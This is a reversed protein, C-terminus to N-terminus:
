FKAPTGNESVGTILGGGGGINCSIGISNISTSNSVLNTVPNKRSKGSIM